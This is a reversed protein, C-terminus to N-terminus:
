VQIVNQSIQSNKDEYEGDANVRFRLLHKEYSSSNIRDKPIKNHLYWHRILYISNGHRDSLKIILNKKELEELATQYNYYDINAENFLDNYDLIQILEDVNDCFGKDDANNIMFFYLLKAKNSTKLKFQSANVFNTSVMRKSKM